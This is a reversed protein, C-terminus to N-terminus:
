YCTADDILSCVNFHLAAKYDMGYLVQPNAPLQHMARAYGSIGHLFATVVACRGVSFHLAEPTPQAARARPSDM